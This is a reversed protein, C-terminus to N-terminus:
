IVVDNVCPSNIQVAADYSLEHQVHNHQKERKRDVFRRVGPRRVIKAVIKRSELSPDRQVRRNM